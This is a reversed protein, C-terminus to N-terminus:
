IITEKIDIELGDDTIPTVEVDLKMLSEIPNEDDYDDDDSDRDDPVIESSSHSEYSCESDYSEEQAIRIGRRKEKKSM